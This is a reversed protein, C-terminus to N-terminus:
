FALNSSSLTLRSSSMCSKPSLSSTKTPVRSRRSICQDRALVSIRTSSVFRLSGPLGEPIGADSRLALVPFIGYWLFVVCIVFALILFVFELPLYRRLIEARLIELNM